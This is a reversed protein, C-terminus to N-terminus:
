PRAKQPLSAMVHKLASVTDSEKVIDHQEEWGHTTRVIVVNRLRAIADKRLLTHLVHKDVWTDSIHTWQEATERISYPLDGAERSEIADKLLRCTSSMNEGFIDAMLAAYANSIRQQLRKHSAVGHLM